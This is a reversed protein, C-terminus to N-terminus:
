HRFGKSILEAQDSRIELVRRAGLQSPLPSHRQVTDLCADVKRRQVKVRKFVPLLQQRASLVDWVVDQAEYNVEDEDKNAAERRAARGSESALFM